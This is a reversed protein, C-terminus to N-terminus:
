LTDLCKAYESDSSGRGANDSHPIYNRSIRHPDRRVERSIRDHAVCFKKRAIMGNCYHLCVTLPTGIKPHLYEFIQITLNHMIARQTHAFNRCSRDNTLSVSSTESIKNLPTAVPPIDPYIGGLILGGLIKIPYKEKM